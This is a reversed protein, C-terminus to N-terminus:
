EEVEVRWVPCWEGTDEDIRAYECVSVGARPSPEDTWYKPVPEGTAEELAEIWHAQDSDYEVPGCYREWEEIIGYPTHESGAFKSLTVTAM